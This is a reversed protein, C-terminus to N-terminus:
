DGDATGLVERLKDIIVPKNLIGSFAAVNFNREAETDATIAFITLNKHSPIARIAAALEDGNMGPMWMDTLVAGFDQKALLALAEVGGSAAFPRFGIKKLMASLVKLNMPVDDVILIDRNHLKHIPPADPVNTNAASQAQAKNRDGHEPEPDHTKMRYQVNDFKIIFSSGKGLTSELLIRGGMKTALRKSIALGLGSGDYSHAGRVANQQVFPEFVKQRYEDPIGIGTDIVRITLVGVGSRSPAFAARIAVSGESTFKIANGIVNLLIQRLRLSDIRMPPMDTEARISFQLKKAEAQYRFLSQMDNLVENIDMEDPVVELQDAELKSLDLLDCILRLLAKGSSNIGKLYDIREEDSMKSSQLLESFGIVANLPTRLEHSMTAVFLSKAQDAAKAAEMAEEAMRRGENIATVEIVSEIVNCVAGKEDFVPSTEVLYDHGNLKMECSNSHGSRLAKRVPCNEESRSAGCMSCHEGVPAAGHSNRGFLDKAADNLVILEASSDFLFIPIKITNFILEKCHIQGTVGKADIVAESAEAACQFVGALKGRLGFLPTATLLLERGNRSIMSNCVTRENAARYAPSDSLLAERSKVASRQHGSLPLAPDGGFNEVAGNNKEVVKMNADFLVAAEHLAAFMQKRLKQMERIYRFFWILVAILLFAAAAVLVALVFYWEEGVGSDTPLLSPRTSYLIVTDNM